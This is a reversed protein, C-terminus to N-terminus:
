RWCTSARRTSRRSTPSRLRRRPARRGGGAADRQLRHDREAAHAARPEHQGPVPEEHSQRNGSGEKASVLEEEARKRDTIDRIVGTFEAAAGPGPLGEGSICTIALEVPFESGDARMGTIEIRKGLLAGEGTALFRALGQRHRDRLSPPVILEAMERGIAEDRRYGFTKEAAPNWETINGQDDITIICDLTTVLIARQRLESERLEAEARKREIFQGIQHGLMSVTRLLSRDPRQIATSFFEMVGLVERNLRIPFALAGHLGDQGVAAARPLDNERSADSLWVPEGSGWVRGPLGAEPGLATKLSTTALATGEFGPAPWVRRCRLAGAREDMSWFTGIQSELAEGITQLIKATAEEVSPSEALVRSLAYQVAVRRQERRRATVDTFTVVAGQIQGEAIVPNSTYDAIFSTGDQRWLIENEVRCSEGTQFAHFIPCEEEPYPSGDARTHHILAHMNQGLVERQECRLMSAGVRNIFTCRGEQDIGYIGDGTAELLAGPDPGEVEPPPSGRHKRDQM